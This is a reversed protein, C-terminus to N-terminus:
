YAYGMLALQAFIESTPLSNLGDKDDLKLHRRISGETISLSHGDVTAHIKVNGNDDTVIAATLNVCLTTKPLSGAMFPNSFDKGTATQEPSALALAMQEPSTLEQHRNSM